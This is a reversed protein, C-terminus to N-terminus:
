PDFDQSATNRPSVTVAERTMWTELKGSFPLDLVPRRETERSEKLALHHKLPM